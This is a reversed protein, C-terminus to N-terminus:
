NNLTLEISKKYAVNLKKIFQNWNEFDKQEVKLTKLYLDFNYIVQNDSIEYKVDFGFQEHHYSIKEPLYTASYNEPIQLTNKVRIKTHNGLSLAYIKENMDIDRKSYPTSLNLNVYIHNELSTVYDPIHFEYEIINNEERSKFNKLSYNDLQFKDSGKGVHNEIKRRENEKDSYNAQNALDFDYYGSLTVTGTGKLTSNDISLNISDTITNKDYEIEPVDIVKFENESISILVDKGLIFKSPYNISTYATADLIYYRGDIEATCVMHNDNYITPIDYYTYPISRTGVWSLYANIGAAKLLQTTLNTMDKCDGYKRKVVLDAERPVFGGYGDEFAVYRINDQVWYFISRMKEISSDTGTTISDSLAKIEPSVFNSKSTISYYWNHLGELDPIVDINEECAKYDNIYFVVHPIYYDSDFDNQLSYGPIYESVSIKVTTTRKSEETKIEVINDWDNFVKYSINVEKPYTISFEAFEVPFFNTFRFYGILHPDKVKEKYSVESKCGAHMNPFVIRKSQYDDFFVTNDSRSSTVINDIKTKKYKSGEPEYFYSEIDSIENFSTFGIYQDSIDHNINSLSLKEQYHDISIDLKCDKIKIDVKETKKLIVFSENPYKNKYTELEAQSFSNKQVILFCFILLKLFKGTM